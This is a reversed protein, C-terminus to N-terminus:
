GNQCAYRLGLSDETNVGLVTSGPPRDLQRVAVGLHHPVAREADHEPGVEERSRAIAVIRHALLGLSLERRDPLGRCKRDLFHLEIRPVTHTQVRARLNM